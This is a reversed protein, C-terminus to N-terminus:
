LLLVHDAHGTMEAMDDNHVYVGEVWGLLHIRRDVTNRAQLAARGAAQLLALRVDREVQDASRALRGAEPGGARETGQGQAAPGGAPQAAAPHDLAQLARRAAAARRRGRMHRARQADLSHQAEAQTACLPPTHLAEECQEDRPKCPALLM